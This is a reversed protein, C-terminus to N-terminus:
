DRLRTWSKAVEHVIYGILSRQGHLEGPLVVLTPLWEKELADKLGLSQVWTEQMAHLNKVTQTLLSAM